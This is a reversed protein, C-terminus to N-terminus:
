MGPLAALRVNFTQASKDGWRFTFWGGVREPELLGADSDPGFAAVLAAPATAYGRRTNAVLIMDLFARVADAM